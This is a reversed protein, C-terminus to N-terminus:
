ELPRDVAIMVGAQSVTGAVEVVVEYDGPDLTAPLRVNVQQLGAFFPAQGFYLVNEEPLEEGNLLVRSPLTLSAAFPPLQGEEVPPQTPGFGTGFLIVVEGPLAPAAGVQDGRGVVSFNTHAVVPFLGPASERVFVDTVVNDQLGERVVVLKWAQPRGRLSAPVQANIQTPSVFYLPAAQNGIRVTVGGLSLPLRGGALTDVTVAQTRLALDDGFISIISNPAIFNDPAPVFSAANVVGGANVFPIEKQGEEAAFLM